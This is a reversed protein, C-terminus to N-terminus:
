LVSGRQADAWAIATRTLERSNRLGLKHKIHAYHTEVTKVSLKMQAAIERTALGQGVLMLVHQERASLTEALSRGGPQRRGSLTTLIRETTEPSAYPKGAAVRRVATLLDVVGGSKMIYGLAGAKFARDAYLREDYGSLVLVRVSPNQAVLAAVLELGSDRGLALDVIVVHPQQTAVASLAESATSAEACVLFDPEDNLVEVLGARLVPHDDVIVIRTRSVM